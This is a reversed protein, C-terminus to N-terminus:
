VLTGSERMERAFGMIKHQREILSFFFFTCLLFFTSVNKTKIKNERTRKHHTNNHQNSSPNQLALSLFFNLLSSPNPIVFLTVLKEQIM